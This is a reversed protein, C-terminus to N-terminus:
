KDREHERQGSRDRHVYVIEKRYVDAESWGM